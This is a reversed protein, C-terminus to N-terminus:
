AVGGEIEAALAKRRSPPMWPSSLQTAVAIVGAVMMGQPQPFWWLFHLLWAWGACGAVWWLSIRGSRTFESQRWWRPILFLFAFYAIYYQPAVTMNTGSMPWKLLENSLFGQRISIPDGWAATNLLLAQGILWAGAGVLAGLLLLTLRMPVQDELKGEAFKAPVLIAWSGITGVSALWLYMAMNESAPQESALLPAVCAAVAAFIAALLMSGVLEQLKDRLPKAALDRHARDRWSPRLRRGSKTPKAIPTAKAEANTPWAATQQETGRSAGNATPTLPVSATAGHRRLGPKIFSTWIVYYICYV